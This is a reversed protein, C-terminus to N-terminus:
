MERRSSDGPCTNRKRLMQKIERWDSGQSTFADLAASILAPRRAVPSQIKLDEEPQNLAINAVKKMMAARKRTPVAHFENNYLKEGPRSM